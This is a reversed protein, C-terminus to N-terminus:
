NKGLVVNESALLKQTAEDAIGTVDLKNLYQFDKVAQETGPTYEGSYNVFMYHLEDLRKQMALVRDNKDGPKLTAGPTFGSNTEAPKSSAEGSSASSSTSSESSGSEAPASSDEGEMLEPFATGAMFIVAQLMGDGSRTMYGPDMEYVRGEKVAALDKYNEAAELQAKMGTPCFIFNPAAIKITEFDAKGSVGENAGNVLGAAEILTGALMDGTVAGGQTDFLYCGVKITNAEPILRTVDDISMLLNKIAKEGAKYGTSGGKLLSGIETYFRSTDQRSKPPEIVAVDIGAGNLASKVDEGPDADLLVLSAGAEKIAGSDAATVDPLVSLDSQTCEKSKAKLSIEYKMELIVDAIDDSLVAVGAPEGKLTVGGVTVPYDKELAGSTTVEGKDSCGVFATVVLLGALLGAAMKKLIRM